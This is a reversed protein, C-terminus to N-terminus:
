FGKFWNPPYARVAAWYKWADFKSIKKTCLASYRLLWDAWVRSQKPGDIWGDKTYVQYMGPPFNGKYQYAKDHLYSPLEWPGDRRAVAPPIFTPVSAKDYEDGAKITIREAAGTKPNPWEFVFDDMLKWLGSANDFQLVPNVVEIWSSYTTM